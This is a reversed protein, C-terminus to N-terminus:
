RGEKEKRAEALGKLIGNAFERKRDNIIMEKQMRGSLLMVLWVAVIAKVISPQCYGYLLMEAGYWSLCLFILLVVSTVIRTLLITRKRVRKEIERKEEETLIESM